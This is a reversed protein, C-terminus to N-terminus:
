ITRTKVQSGAPHRNKAQCPSAHEEGSTSGQAALPSLFGRRLSQRFHAQAKHLQCTQVNGKHKCWGIAAKRKGLQAASQSRGVAGPAGISSEPSQQCPSVPLKIHPMQGGHCTSGGIYNVSAPAAYAVVPVSVDLVGADDCSAQLCETDTQVSLASAIKEKQKCNVYSYM